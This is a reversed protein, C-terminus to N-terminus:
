CGWSNSSMWKEDVIEGSLDTDLYREGEELQKANHGKPYYTLGGSGYNSAFPADGLSFQVCLDDAIAMGEVTLKKIQQQIETLRKASAQDCAESAM